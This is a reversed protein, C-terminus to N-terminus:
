RFRGKTQGLSIASWGRRITLYISLIPLGRRCSRFGLQTAGEIEKQPAVVPHFELSHEIDVLRRRPTLECRLIRQIVLSLPFPPIRTRM